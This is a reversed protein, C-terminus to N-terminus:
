ALASCAEGASDAQGIELGLLLVVLGVPVCVVELALDDVHRWDTGLDKGLEDGGGFLLGVGGLNGLGLTHGTALLVQGELRVIVM